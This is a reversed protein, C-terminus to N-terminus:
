PKTMLLEFGCFDLDFDYSGNPIDYPSDGRETVGAPGANKTDTVSNAKTGSGPMPHQHQLPIQWQIQWAAKQNYPRIREQNWQYVYHDQAMNFGSQSQDMVVTIKHWRGAALGSTWNAKVNANPAGEKGNVTKGAYDDSSGGKWNNEPSGGFWHKYEWGVEKPMDTLVATVFSWANGTDAGDKGKSSNLKVYFTYGYAKKILEKAMKNWPIAGWGVMPYHAGEDAKRDEKLVKVNGKIHFIPGEVEKGDKGKPKEGTYAGETYPTATPRAKTYTDTGGYEVPKKSKTVKDDEMEWEGNSDKKHMYNIISVGGPPFVTQHSAKTVSTYEPTSLYANLEYDDSVYWIWEPKEPPHMLGPKIKETGYGMTYIGGGASEGIDIITIGDEDITVDFDAIASGEAGNPMLTWIPGNKSLTGKNILKGGMFFEYDIGIVNLVYEVGDLDTGSYVDPEPPPVSKVGGGTDGCSFVAALVLGALIALVVSFFRRNRKM